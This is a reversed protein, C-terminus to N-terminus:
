RGRVSRLVREVDRLHHHGEHVANRATTLLDRRGWPFDAERSWADGHVDDLAAALREAERGVRDLADGPDEANATTEWAAEDKSPWDVTADDVDLMRRVADAHWALVDAIHVTYALASWTAPDPKRRILADEDEQEDFTTLLARFRRPYSRVAVALDGPALTDYDIACEPCTWGM